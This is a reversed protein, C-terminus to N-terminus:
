EAFKRPPPENRSRTGLMRSKRKVNHDARRRLNNLNGREQFSRRCDIRGLPVGGGDSMVGDTLDTAYVSRRDTNVFENSRARDLINGVPEVARRKEHQLAVRRRVARGDARAQLARRVAEM